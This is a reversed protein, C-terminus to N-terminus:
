QGKRKVKCNQLFHELCKMVQDPTPESMPVEQREGYRAYEGNVNTMYFARVFAEEGKADKHFVKVHLDPMPDSDGSDALGIEVVCTGSPMKKEYRM